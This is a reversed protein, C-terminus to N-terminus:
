GNKVIGRYAIYKGCKTFGASQAAKVQIIAGDDIMFLVSKKDSEFAFEAAASLLVAGIFEDQIELAFIESIDGWLSMLIYSNERMYIRWQSLDRSIKKGTWFMEPNTKDHLETFISINEYTVLTLELGHVPTFNERTLRTEVCSELLNANIERMFEVPIECNKLNHCCFDIECNAYKDQLDRWFNPNAKLDTITLDNIQIHNESENKNKNIIIQMILSSERRRKAGGGEALISALRQKEEYLGRGKCGNSLIM